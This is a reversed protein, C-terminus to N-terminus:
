QGPVWAAVPSIQGWALPFIWGAGMGARSRYRSCTGRAEAPDRLTRVAFARIRAFWEWAGFFFTHLLTLSLCDDRARILTSPRTRLTFTARARIGM